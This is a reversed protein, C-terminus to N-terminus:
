KKIKKPKSVSEEESGTLDGWLQGFMKTPDKQMKMQQKM